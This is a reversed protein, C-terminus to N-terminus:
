VNSTSSIGFSDRNADRKFSTVKMRQINKEFEAEYTQPNSRNTKIAARYLMHDVLPYFNNDPMDVNDYYSTLVPSNARYYLYYTAPTTPSPVFGIYNGRIYYTPSTESNEARIDEFNILNIITGGSDTVSILDGFAPILNGGSDTDFGQPLAYEQTGSTVAISYETPVSYEQNVLNLENRAISYGENLWRFADENTILRLEKNSLLSFFSDLIKKVSGEKFGGYPIANSYTTAKATTSNYFIFWGYGTTNTTDSGVSYFDDAQLDLYATVPATASFTATATHYFRVQNYPLVYLKTDQSHAFKTAAKLVLTHTAATISDIQVVETSESGFEGLLIYDNATFSNSNVVVISTVGSVYNASLYSFKANKILSRNDAKLVISM